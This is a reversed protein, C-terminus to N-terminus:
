RFGAVQAQYMTVPIFRVAFETKCRACPIFFPKGNKGKELPFDHKHNCYPCNAVVTAQTVPKKEMKPTSRPPKAETSPQSRVSGQAPAPAQIAIQSLAPPWDGAKKTREKKTTTAIPLTEESPIMIIEPPPIEGKMAKKWIAPMSSKSYHLPRGGKMHAADGEVVYYKDRYVVLVQNGIEAVKIGASMKNDLWFQVSESM